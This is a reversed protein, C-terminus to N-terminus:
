KVEEWHCEIFGSPQEEEVSKWVSWDEHKVMYKINDGAEIIFNGLYNGRICTFCSLCPVKETLATIAHNLDSFWVSYGM